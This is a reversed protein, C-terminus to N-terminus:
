EKIVRYEIKGLTTEFGFDDSLRLHVTPFYYFDWEFYDISRNLNIILTIEQYEEESYENGYDVENVYVVNGIKVDIYEVIKKGSTNWNLIDSFDIVAHKTLRAGLNWDIDTRMIFIGFIIYDVTGNSYAFLSKRDNSIYVNATNTRQEDNVNYFHWEYESIPPNILCKDNTFSWYYGEPCVDEKPPPIPIDEKYTIVAGLLIGLLLTIVISFVWLKNKSEENL